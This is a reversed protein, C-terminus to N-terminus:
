LTRLIKVAKKHSLFSLLCLEENQSRVHKLHYTMLFTM